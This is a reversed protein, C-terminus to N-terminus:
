LTRQTKNRQTSEKLVGRGHPRRKSEKAKASIFYWHSPGGAFRLYRHSPGGAFRLDSSLFRVFCNMSPLRCKTETSAVSVSIGQKNEKREAHIRSTLHHYFEHSTRLRCSKGGCHCKLPGFSPFDLCAFAQPSFFPSFQFQPHSEDCTWIISAKEIFRNEPFPLFSGPYKCRAALIQQCGFLSFRSSWPREWMIEACQTTITKRPLYDLLGIPERSAKVASEHAELVHKM